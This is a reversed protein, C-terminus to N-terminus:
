KREGTYNIIDSITVEPAKKKFHDISTNSNFIALFMFGNYVVCPESISEPLESKIKYFDLVLKIRKYDINNTVYCYWIDKEIQVM